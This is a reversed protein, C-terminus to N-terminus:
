SNSDDAKDGVLYPLFEKEFLRDSNDIIYKRLRRFKKMLTKGFPTLESGGGSSGGANKVLIKKNLRDETAKIKGWVGRYSMKLEKAASNISGHREVAELIRFRGLGFVVEENEDVIWIKSRIELSNSQNIIKKVKKKKKVPLVISRMM